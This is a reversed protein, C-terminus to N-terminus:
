VRGRLPLGMRMSELTTCGAVAHTRVGRAQGCDRGVDVISICLISVFVCSSRPALLGAALARVHAAILSSVPCGTGSGVPVAIAM